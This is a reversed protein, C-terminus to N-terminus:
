ASAACNIPVGKPGPSMMVRCPSGESESYMKARPWTPIKRSAAGPLEGARGRNAVSAAGAYKPSIPKSVPWALVAVM